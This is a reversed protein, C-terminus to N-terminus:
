RTPGRGPHLQGSIWALVIDGADFPDIRRRDPNLLQISQLVLVVEVQRVRGGAGHRARKAIARRGPDLDDLLHAPDVLALREEPDALSVAPLM